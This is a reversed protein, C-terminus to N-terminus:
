EKDVKKRKIIFYIGVGGLLLIAIVPLNGILFVIVGSAAALLFNTSTVLQKKTKEWTDLDLSDIEPVIVRDEYMFIEITSFSTQNEFYKMQGVIVEIEEQVKALDSSINLLDATKEAKGMFELLREEVARKSKVRSELDVYQETVDQGTVNRELIEAAEEEADALFRQFHKEPVRVTIMGSVLRDSERYVNSEVIYGGYENVKQEIKLQAKGLDKVHVRLQAQHIIMRNTTNGESKHDRDVAGEDSSSYEMEGEVSVENSGASSDAMDKKAEESSNSSSCAAMLALLGSLILIFFAKRKMLHGGQKRKMYSSIM